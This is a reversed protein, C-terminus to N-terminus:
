FYSTPLAAPMLAGVLAPARTLLRPQPLPHVCAAKGGAPQSRSLSFGRQRHVRCSSACKSGRGARPPLLPGPLSARAFGM